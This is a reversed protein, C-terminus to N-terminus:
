LTDTAPTLTFGISEVFKTLRARRGRGEILAVIQAETVRRLREDTFLHYQGVWEHIEAITGRCPLNERPVLPLLPTAPLEKGLALFAASLRSAYPEDWALMDILV